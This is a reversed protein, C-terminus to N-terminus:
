PCKAVLGDVFVYSRAEESLDQSLSPCRLLATLQKLFSCCAYCIYLLIAPKHSEYAVGSSDVVDESELAKEATNFARYAEENTRHVSERGLHKLEATRHKLRLLLAVTPKSRHAVALQSASRSLTQM